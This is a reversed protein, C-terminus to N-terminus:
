KYIYIKNTSNTVFYECQKGLSTTIYIQMFRYFGLTLNTRILRLKNFKNGFTNTERIPMSETAMTTLAYDYNDNVVSNTADYYSFLNYPALNIAPGDFRHYRQETAIEESYVIIDNHLLQVSVGVSYTLDDTYGYTIISVMNELSTEDM